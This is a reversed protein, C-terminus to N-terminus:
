EFEKSIELVTKNSNHNKKITIKYYHGWPLRLPDIKDPLLKFLHATIYSWMLIVPWRRVPHKLSNYFSMSLTDRRTKTAWIDYSAIYVVLGLWAKGGANLKDAM